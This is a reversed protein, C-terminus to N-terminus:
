RREEIGSKLKHLKAVDQEAQRALNEATQHLLGSLSELAKATALIMRRSNEEDLKPEIPNFLRNPQTVPPPFNEFWRDITEQDIQFQRRTRQRRSEPLPNVHAKIM